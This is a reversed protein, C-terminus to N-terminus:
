QKSLELADPFTAGDVLLRRYQMLMRPRSFAVAGTFRDGRGFIAVFKREDLSGDVPTVEIVQRNTRLFEAM